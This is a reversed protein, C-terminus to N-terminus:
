EIESDLTLEFKLIEKNRWVEAVVKQGALQRVLRGASEASEIRAGNLALLVDGSLIDAGYAPTGQVITTLLVGGNRGISQRLEQPTEGWFAGFIFQKQQVYFGAFFNYRMVNYPIYTTSPTAPMQTITTSEYTGRASSGSTGYVSVNGTARSTLVGGPEYTKIPLAGSLTHSYESSVLVLTAGVEGAQEILKKKSVAEAAANFSSYGILFYGREALAAGDKQPDASYSYVQPDGLPQSYKPNDKIVLDPGVLPQYFSRYPNGCGAVIVLFVTVAFSRNM